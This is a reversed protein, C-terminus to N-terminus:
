SCHHCGHPSVLYKEVMVDYGTERLWGCAPCYIHALEENDPSPVMVMGRDMALMVARKIDGRKIVM